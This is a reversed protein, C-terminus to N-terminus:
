FKADKPSIIPKEVFPNQNAWSTLTEKVKQLKDKNTCFVRLYVEMATNPVMSSIEESSIKFPEDDNENTYYIRQFPSTEKLAFDYKHMTIRVVDGLGKCTKINSIVFVM